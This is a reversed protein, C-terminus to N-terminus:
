FRYIITEYSVSQNMARNRWTVTIVVRRGDIGEVSADSIVVARSCTVQADGLVPAMLLLGDQREYNEQVLDDFEADRMEEALEMCLQMAATHQSAAVTSNAAMVISMLVGGLVMASLILAVLVEILTMPSRKVIVTSAHGGMTLM